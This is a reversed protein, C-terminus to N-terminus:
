CLCTCTNNETLKKLNNKLKINELTTISDWKQYDAFTILMCKLKEEMDNIYLLLGWIWAQEQQTELKFCSDSM